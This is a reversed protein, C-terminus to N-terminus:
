HFLKNSQKEYREERKSEGGAKNGALFVLRSVLGCDLLRSFFGSGSGFLLFLVSRFKKSKLAFLIGNPM